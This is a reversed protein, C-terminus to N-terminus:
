NTQFYQVVASRIDNRKDTTDNPDPETFNSVEPNDQILFDLNNERGSMLFGSSIIHYKKTLDIANGDILWTKDSENYEIKDWQLYGGSGANKIGMDLTKKLLAGTMDFEVLNGGFPMTRLIDVETIDGELYDDIRVSGSNFFVCDPKQKAVMGMSKAILQGLNTQRNRISSEKGDLPTTINALMKNPDFGAKRISVDAIDTWKKVVKQVAPDDELTENIRVLGSVLETSKTKKDFQITHVYATKANADAKAVINNGVRHIMNDHDHGGMLLPVNTMRKAMELDDEINLHTLGIVLDTRTALDDYAKQAEEFFDEYHVYDKVTSPITASFFGIKISTGDEDTIEWVHTDKIFEKKGNVLKHFPNLQDGQKHLVSTGIWEFTSENLREQLESESIDFEHNGFAVLDFNCHNMVDIMQKGKIRKGEYKMTGILSPNLFDGGHVTYTNKNQAKLKKQLTAFRAMGGVKGGELPAIEYVDNIHLFVFEIKGDDIKVPTTSVVEKTPTCAFQGLAVLFLLYLKFHKRM